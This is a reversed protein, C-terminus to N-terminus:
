HFFFIDIFIGSFKTVHNREDGNSHDLNHVNGGREEGVEM